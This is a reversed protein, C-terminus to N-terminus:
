FCYADILDLLYGPGYIGWIALIVACLVLAAGAGAWLLVRSLTRGFVRTASGDAVGGADSGRNM